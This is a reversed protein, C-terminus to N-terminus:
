AAAPAQRRPPARRFWQEEEAAAAPSQKRGKRGAELKASLAKIIFSSDNLQEGDVVLVPVQAGRTLFLGWGCDLM